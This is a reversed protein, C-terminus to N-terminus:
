SEKLLESEILVKLGDESLYSQPFVERAELLFGELDDYRSSYHGLFLRGVNAKLAIKAAQEATSHFTEKARKELEKLFTSEHYMVDVGEVIELISETYKTDSCFAYSRSRAGPITLDSAKLVEGNERLVDQGKKLLVIEAINLDNKYIESKVINRESEKEQFLFGTCDVRHKLPFSSIKVQDNEFLLEVKKIQTEKFYLNYNLYTKSAKLMARIIEELGPPGYVHLDNTRGLLHMSSILGPLGFYHDGHLHSIFIHNIRQFKIKQDRIRLQTGEGCDILYLKDKINLCQSTPNRRLTPLASGCGLISIEFKSM